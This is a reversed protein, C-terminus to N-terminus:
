TILTMLLQTPTPWYFDHQLDWSAVSLRIWHLIRRSKTHFHNWCIQKGLQCPVYILFQFQFAPIATTLAATSLLYYIAHSNHHM